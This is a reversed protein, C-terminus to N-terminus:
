KNKNLNFERIVKGSKCHKMFAKASRDNFNPKTYETLIVTAKKLGQCHMRIVDDLLIDEDPYEHIGRCSGWSHEFWYVSNGAKYVLFTHSPDTQNNHAEIYFTKFKFNHKSFWDRELEVQDWCVGICSKSLEQPTQLYYNYYFLTEDESDDVINGDKDLVGYEIRNMWKLLQQPTNMEEYSAGTSEFM